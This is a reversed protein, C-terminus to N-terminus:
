SAVTGHRLLLARALGRAAEFHRPVDAPFSAYDGATLETIREVPGAILRGQLVYLEERAGAAGPPLERLERAALQLELVELPGEVDVTDVAREGRRVPAGRVIRVEALPPEDVLEALPVRLAAALLSLTGVTPNAQGGEIASLTAKGAGTARALESLSLGRAIRLRRLNAALVEKIDPADSSAYRSAFVGIV